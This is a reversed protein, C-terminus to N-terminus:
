PRRNQPLMIIMTRKWVIECQAYLPETDHEARYDAYLNDIDTKVEDVDSLVVGNGCDECWGYLFAEDTYNRFTKDNPNIMAECAVNMRGCQTCIVKM